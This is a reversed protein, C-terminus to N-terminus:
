AHAAVVVRNRGAAKARYLAADAHEILRVPLDGAAPVMSAAGISITVVGAAESRPHPILLDLVAQRCRQAVTEVGSGSGSGPLLLVFEEGGYRAVLDGPREACGALARAIEMLVMDGYPHGSFDNLEKFQDVDILLLGDPERNRQARRWDRALVEDFRRRNAIRTLADTDALRQLADRAAALEATHQTVLRETDRTASHRHRLCLALLLIVALNAVLLLWPQLSFGAGFPQQPQVRLLWHRGSGRLTSEVVAEADFQWDGEPHRLLEVVLPFRLQLSPLSSAAVLEVRSEEFLPALSRRVLSDTFLALMVFGRLRQAREVPPPSLQDFVPLLMAVTVPEGPRPTFRFPPPTILTDRLAAEYIVAFEEPDAGLDSGLMGPDYAPELYVLPAVPGAAEPPAKGTPGDTGYAALLAPQRVEVWGIAVVEGHRRQLARAVKAFDGHDVSGRTLFLDRVGYLSAEYGLLSRQLAGAAREVQQEYRHHAQRQEDLHLLLSAVLAALAGLGLLGYSIFQPWRRDGAAISM